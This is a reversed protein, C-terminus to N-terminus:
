YAMMSKYPDLIRDVTTDILDPSFSINATGSTTISRLGTTGGGRSLFNKVLMACAQKVARPMNLPDFGSDYCVVIESYQSLYLGAPVWIEGTQVDFDSMTLDIPSWNPPGGFFGAIMLINAGYSLDPYIQQTGRRGYSYRGSAGIIPSITSGPVGVIPITAPQVGTYFYNTYLLNTAGVLTKGTPNLPVNNASAQLNNVTSTSIAVLPKFSLRVINRNPAQMLLREFYTSYVLSGQGTGDVRGCHVDILSSAADVLSLIQPTKNADPLGYATLENPLIFRPTFPGRAPIPLPSSSM